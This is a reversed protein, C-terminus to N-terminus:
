KLCMDQFDNNIKKMDKGYSRLAESDADAFIDFFSGILNKLIGKQTKYDLKKLTFSDFISDTYEIGFGSDIKKSIGKGLIDKTLKSAVKKSVKALNTLYNNSLDESFYEVGMKLTRNNMRICQYLMLFETYDESDMKDITQCYKELTDIHKLNENYASECMAKVIDDM